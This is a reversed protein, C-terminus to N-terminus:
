SSTKHLKIVRGNVPTAIARLYALAVESAAVPAFGPFLPHYAVSEALREIEHVRVAGLESCLTAIRRL